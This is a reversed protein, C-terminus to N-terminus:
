KKLVLRLAIDESYPPSSLTLGGGKHAVEQAKDIAGTCPNVWEARYEGAPIDLALDAQSGGQIYIAYEMGPNALTQVTADSPVGEKLTLGTNYEFRTASDGPAMKIFDFSYLFDKLIKIQSRLTLGGGGPQSSPFEFTGDEKGVTFSYDLNNYIGGGALLFHWGESRYPLDDTGKFGTEDDGIVRELGYNFKM